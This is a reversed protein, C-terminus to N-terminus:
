RCRRVKGWAIRATLLANGRSARHLLPFLDRQADRGRVDRRHDGRRSRADLCPARHVAALGPAVICEHALRSAVDPSHRQSLRGRAELFGRHSGARQQAPDGAQGSRSWPVRLDRSRIRLRKAIRRPSATARRPSCTSGASSIPSPPAAMVSRRPGRNGPCACPAACSRTVSRTIPRRARAWHRASAPCPADGDHCAEM